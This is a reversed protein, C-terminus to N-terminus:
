KANSNIEVLDHSEKIYTHIYIAKLTGRKQETQITNQIVM